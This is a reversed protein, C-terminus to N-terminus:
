RFGGVAGLGFEIAGGSRHRVGRCGPGFALNGIVIPDVCDLDGWLSIPSQLGDTKGFIVGFFARLHRSVQVFNETLEQKRGTDSGM